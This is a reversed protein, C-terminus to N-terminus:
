FLCHPDFGHWVNEFISQIDTDILSICFIDSNESLVWGNKEYHRLWRKAWRTILQLRAERISYKRWKHEKEPRGELINNRWAIFSNVVVFSDFLSFGIEFLSTLARSAGPIFDNPKHYGWRNGDLVSTGIVMHKGSTTFTLTITYRGTVDFLKTLKTHDSAKTSGRRKTTFKGM